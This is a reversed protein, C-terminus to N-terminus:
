TGKSSGRAGRHHRKRRRGVGEIKGKQKNWGKLTEQSGGQKGAAEEGEGRQKWSGEVGIDGQEGRRGLYQKNGWRGERCVGKGGEEREEGQQKSSREGLM